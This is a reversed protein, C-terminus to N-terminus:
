ASTTTSLPSHADCLGRCIVPRSPQCRSAFFSRLWAPLEFQYFCCEVDGQALVMRHGPEVEM